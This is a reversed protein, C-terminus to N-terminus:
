QGSLLDEINELDSRFDRVVQDELERYEKAYITKKPM